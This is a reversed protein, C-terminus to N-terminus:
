CAIGAKKDLCDKLRAVISKTFASDLWQELKMHRYIGITKTIYNMRSIFVHDAFPLIQECLAEPDM